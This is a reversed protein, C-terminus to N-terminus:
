RSGRAERHLVPLPAPGHVAGDSLRSGERPREPAQVQGGGKGVRVGHGVM